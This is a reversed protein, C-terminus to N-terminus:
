RVLPSVDIVRGYIVHVEGEIAAAAAAALAPPIAPPLDGTFRSGGEPNIDVSMSGVTTGDAATVSARYSGQLAERTSTSRNLAETGTGAARKFVSTRFASGDAPAITLELEDDNKWAPVIRGIVPADPKAGSRVVAADPGTDWVAAVVAQGERYVYTPDGPRRFWGNAVLMGTPKGDREIVLGHPTERASFTAAGAASALVGAFVSAIVGATRMAVGGHDIGAKM